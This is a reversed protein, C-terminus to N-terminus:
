FTRLPRARIWCTSLWKEGARVPMGAHLSDPDPRGDAHVNRFLVARGRRPRVDLHRAPFATEGGAEVENLYVCVTANRQGGPDAMQPASPLYYDRHPRYQEGPAYHLLVLPECHAPESDGLAAMRQQLLRIGLDEIGSAFSMDRSTRIDYELRQGTQPHIVQSRSLYRVGSYIIYRCEEDSLLGDCTAIQPSECLHQIDRTTTDITQLADWPPEANRNSPAAPASSALTTPLEVPMDIAHLQAALARAAAPDPLTGIGTHLRAAYLAAAIPDRLATARQLCVTAAHQLEPKDSRGFCLGAVRLAAPFSRRASDALLADVRAADFPLLVGGLVIQALLWPTEPTGGAQEARQLLQLAHSPDAERGFGHLNVIALETLAAPHEVAAARELWQSAGDLDDAALRERAQRYAHEADAHPQPQAGPVATNAM